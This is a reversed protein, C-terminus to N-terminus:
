RLRAQDGLPVPYGQGQGSRKEVQQVHSLNVANTNTMTMDGLVEGKDSNIGGLNRSGQSSSLPYPAQELGGGAWPRPFDQGIVGLDQCAEQSLYFNGVGEALYM